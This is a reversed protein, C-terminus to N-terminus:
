KGYVQPASWYYPNKQGNNIAMRMADAAAFAPSKKGSALSTYFTEMWDANSAAKVRWRSLVVQDAGGALLAWPIGFIENSIRTYVKAGECSSFVALNVGKWDAAFLEAANIFGTKSIPRIKITSLLPDEINYTGHLLVHLNANSGMLRIVDNKDIDAVTMAQVQLDKIKVIKSIENTDNELETDYIATVHAITPAKKNLIDIAIVASPAYSVVMNEIFFKGTEPDILVEFPLNVLPGQPIILIQKQKIHKLFPKILYTFLEGSSNTDFKEKHNDGITDCVKQIKDSLVVEPLFVTKVETHDPTIVWVVINTPTVWYLLVPINAQKIVRRFTDLSPLEYESASLKNVVRQIEPNLFLNDHQQKIRDIENLMKVIYQEEIGAITAEVLKNQKASLQSQVLILDALSKREMENLQVNELAKALFGLGYSRVSEFATFADNLNGFSLLRLGFDRVIEIRNELATGRQRMDFLSLREKQLLSSAQKFYVLAEDSKGNLDAIAGKLYLTRPDDEQSGFAAKEILRGLITNDSLKSAGADFNENILVDRVDTAKFVDAQNMKETSSKGNILFMRIDLRSNFQEAQNALSNWGLKGAIKEAEIYHKRASEVARRCASWPDKDDISKADILRRYDCSEAFKQLIDGADLQAYFADSESTALRIAELANILAADLEGRNAQIQSSYDAIEYKQKTTADAGLSLVGRKFAMSAAGHNRTGYTHSRAIGLCADFLINKNRYEDAVDAAREYTAIAEEFRNTLRQITALEFLGGALNEGQSEKIFLKLGSEIKRSKGSEFAGTVRFNEILDIRERRLKDLTEMSYINSVNMLEGMIILFLYLSLLSLKNYYAKNYQIIKTMLKHEKEM